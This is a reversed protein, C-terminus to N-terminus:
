DLECHMRLPKCVKKLLNNSRAVGNLFAGVDNDVFAPLNYFLMLDQKKANPVIHNVLTTAHIVALSLHCSCMRPPLPEKLHDIRGRSRLLIDRTKLVTADDKSADEPYEWFLGPTDILRISKGAAKVVVEQPYM